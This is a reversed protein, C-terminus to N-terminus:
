LSRTPLAPLTQKELTHKQTELWLDEASQKSELNPSSAVGNSVRSATESMISRFLEDCARSKKRVKQVQQEVTAFSEDVERPARKEDVAAKLIKYSHFLGKALQKQRKEKEVKDFQVVCKQLFHFLGTEKKEIHVANVVSSVKIQKVKPDSVYKAVLEGLGPQDFAKDLSKIRM